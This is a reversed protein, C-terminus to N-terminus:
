KYNLAAAAGNSHLARHPPPVQMRMRQEDLDRQQDARQRRVQLGRVDAGPSPEGGGVDAGPSPEGRGVDAGPVPSVGAWTPALVPSVGAWM